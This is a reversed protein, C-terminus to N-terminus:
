NNSLQGTAWWTDFDRAPIPESGYHQADPDEVPTVGPRPFPQPRAPRKSEESNIAQTIWTLTNVADILVATLQELRPWQTDEDANVAYFASDQRSHRAFLEVGRWSLRGPIDSWAWGAHVLDAEM